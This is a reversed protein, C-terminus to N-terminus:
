RMSGALFAHSIQFLLCICSLCSFWFVELRIVVMPHFSPILHISNNYLLPVFNKNHIHRKYDIWIPRSPINYENYSTNRKLIAYMQSFPPLKNGFFRATYIVFISEGDPLLLLRAEQQNYGRDNWFDTVRWETGTVSYNNKNVTGFRLGEAHPWSWEGHGLWAAFYSTNSFAPIRLIPGNLLTPILHPGDKLIRDVPNIVVIKAITIRMFEDLDTYVDCPGVRKLSLLPEFIEETSPATLLTSNITYIRSLPDDTSRVLGEVTQIDPINFVKTYKRVIIYASNNNCDDGDHQTANNLCYVEDNYGGITMTKYRNKEDYQLKTAAAGTTTNIIPIGKLSTENFKVSFNSITQGVAYRLSIISIVLTILTIFRPRITYM